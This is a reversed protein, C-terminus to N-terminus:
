GLTGGNLSLVGQILAAVVGAVLVLQLMWDEFFDTFHTVRRARDQRKGSFGTSSTM